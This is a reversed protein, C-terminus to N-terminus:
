ANLLRQRIREWLSVAAIMMGIIWPLEAGYVDVRLLLALISTYLTLLKALGGRGFLSLLFPLFLIFLTSLSVDAM